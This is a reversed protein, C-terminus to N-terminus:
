GKYYSNSSITLIGYKTTVSKRAKIDASECYDKLPFPIGNTSTLGFLYFGNFLHIIAKQILNELINSFILPTTIRLQRTPYSTFWDPFLHLIFMLLMKSHMLRDDAFVIAKTM